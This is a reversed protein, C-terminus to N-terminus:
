SARVRAAIWGWGYRIEQIRLAVLIGGYILGGLGIGGAVLLGNHLGTGFWMWLWLGAGMAITALASAGIVQLIESGHLGKLRRRMLYLLGATELGTALTNALALGGHPPLGMQAFWYYFFLSFVVNLSMAAVGVIVPTRTDHLAYFARSIIEVLSHGVLGAAYWLLAWAVLDTAQVDLGYILAVLPRRLVILGISAPIALLLVGRLTTALSRRMEEPHGRAVQASFTPLAAIAISQAIAAEPMLMLAFAWNLAPVDAPRASAMRTNIWFNLQVVAVGVLRPGMLILVERVAPLHLGMSLSYRLRPLRVLQPLQILLHLLAGIVVGWAVGYIGMGMQKALIEIGFIIGIPYMAPALAPSLFRQHANLIGMIIGSIGFIVASAIQIRMLRVTLDVLSPDSFQALLHTVVWRALIASLVSLSILVVMVLNCIASALRWANEREGHTLLTTFTPIFASALAGGAVLNFLTDSVRNAAYYAALQDSTGFARALLMNALLGVLKVVVFTAMVTGAARAIQRNATSQQSTSQMSQNYYLLFAL